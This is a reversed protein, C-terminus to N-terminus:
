VGTALDSFRIKFDLFEILQEKTVEKDLWEKKNELPAIERAISRNLNDSRLSLPIEKAIWKDDRLTGYDYGTADIAQAYMEGWKQEGYNLWDGIWFHVAGEAKRIFEGVEQWQEFTPDGIPTLGNKHLLFSSYEIDKNDTLKLENM